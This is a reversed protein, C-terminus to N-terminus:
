GSEDGKCLSRYTKKNWHKETNEQKLYIKMDKWGKPSTQIDQNTSCILGVQVPFLWKGSLNM